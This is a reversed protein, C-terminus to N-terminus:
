IRVSFGRGDRWHLIEVEDDIVNLLYDVDGHMAAELVLRVGERTTRRLGTTDSFDPDGKHSPPLITPLQRLRQSQWLSHPPM